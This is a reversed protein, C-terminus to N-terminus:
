HKRYEDYQRRKRNIRPNYEDGNFLPYKEQHKIYFSIVLMITCFDIHSLDLSTDNPFTLHLQTKDYDDAHAHLPDKATPKFDIRFTKVDSAPTAEFHFSYFSRCFDGDENPEIVEECTLVGAIESAKGFKWKLRDNINAKANIEMFDIKGTNTDKYVKVIQNIDLENVLMHKLKSYLSEIQNNYKKPNIKEHLCTM